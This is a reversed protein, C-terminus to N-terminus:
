RKRAPPKAAPRAPESLMPTGQLSFTQIADGRPVQPALDVQLIEVRTIRAM